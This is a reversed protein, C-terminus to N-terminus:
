TFVFDIYMKWKNLLNDVGINNLFHINIVFKGFRNDFFCNIDTELDFKEGTRYGVTTVLPTLNNMSAWPFDPNEAFSISILTSELWSITATQDLPAVFSITTKRLPIDNIINYPPFGPSDKEVTVPTATGGGNGGSLRVGNIYIGDNPKIEIKNGNDISILKEMELQGNDNYTFIDKRTEDYFSM